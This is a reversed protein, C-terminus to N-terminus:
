RATNAARDSHFQPASHRSRCVLWAHRWKRSPTNLSPPARYGGTVLCSRLELEHEPPFSDRRGCLSMAQRSLSRSVCCPAYPAAGERDYNTNNTNRDHDTKVDPPPRPETGAQLSARNYNANANPLCSDRRGCPIDNAKFPIVIRLAAPVSVRGGSRLALQIKSRPAGGRRYRLAIRIGTRTQSRLLDRHAVLRTRLRARGIM